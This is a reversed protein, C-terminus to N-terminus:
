DLLGLQPLIRYTVTGAGAFPAACILGSLLAASLATGAVRSIATAGGLSSVSALFAAALLTAGGLSLTVRTMGLAPLEPEAGTELQVARVELLSRGGLPAVGDLEGWEPGHVVNLLAGILPRRGCAAVAQRDAALERGTLYRASLSDFVPLLFFTASLTQLM